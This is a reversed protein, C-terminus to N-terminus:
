VRKKWLLGGSLLLGLVVFSALSIYNSYEILKTNEFVVRVIHKGETIQFTMLGRYAPDQFQLGVEANDVYIKWGPFYLTNEVIRSGSQAEVAYTHSVTTHTLPQITAKGSIVSMPAEPTHEMFRVSWIPSSEGTDTTSKYIGTYFSEDRSQYAKPFWMFASLIVSSICLIGALLKGYKAQKLMVAVSFGGAIAAAFVSVALFRWPFQFKQLMTISLWVPKSWSTMIFFSGILIGLIGILFVRAKGTRLKIASLLAVLIGVWQAIGLSKTLEAGGGYNWPSYFFWTWPVFRQLAEQGTVIDRLTYKGEFFAPVWFFASIGFGCLISVTSYMAFIWKHKAEFVMLYAGYLLFLPLFMLAIANHSLILFALSFALGASYFVCQRIKNTRVALVYLFYCVLPPFIFAVHEGLAGRVYLDVFRYPAFAYLLAGTIGAWKGYASKMWLYMTFISALFSLGFLLKVSNVFSFGIVHFFSAAYSPLPYLFMLIPHGYGWNLSGAWRPVITGEQLNQYFNAIRAVHDQGDHTVPLEPPLLGILPVFCVLIVLFLLIKKVAM